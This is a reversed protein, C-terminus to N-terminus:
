YRLCPDLHCWLIICKGNNMFAHAQCIQNNVAPTTGKTVKGNCASSESSSM